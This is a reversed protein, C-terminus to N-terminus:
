QVIFPKRSCQIFDYSLWDLCDNLFLFQVGAQQWQPTSTCHQVLMTSNQLLGRTKSIKVCELLVMSVKKPMPSILLTTIYGCLRVDHELKTSFRCFCRTQEINVCAVCAPVLSCEHCARRGLAWDINWEGEFDGTDAVVITHQKLQDLCSAAMKSQKAPPESMRGTYQALKNVVLAPALQWTWLECVPFVEEHCLKIPSM